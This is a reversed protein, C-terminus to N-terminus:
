SIHAGSGLCGDINVSLPTTAVSQEIFPIFSEHILGRVEFM